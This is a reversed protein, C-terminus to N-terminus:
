VRFARVVSKPIEEDVIDLQAAPRPEIGFAFTTSCIAFYKFTERSQSIVPSSFLLTCFVIEGSIMASASSM